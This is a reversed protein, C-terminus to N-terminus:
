GSNDPSLSRAATWPRNQTGSMLDAIRRSVEAQAASQQSRIYPSLARLERMQLLVPLGILGEPAVGYARCLKEWRSPPEGFRYRMRTPVVDQERPGYSVSDWDALVVRDDTHILNDTYADGHLLGCGLAFSTAGYQRALEECRSGLWSRQTDTLWVCRGMDERVSGLPNTKPLQVPPAPLGHLERILRALVEIDDWPRRVEPVYHWFTAIYGQVTVPQEVDLPSVAPFGMSNLWATVQVSATLRALWEASGAAYRLRVVASPGTLRYVTNARSYIAQAGDPDLGVLACAETLAASRKDM